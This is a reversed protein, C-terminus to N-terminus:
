PAVHDYEEETPIYVGVPGQRRPRRDGLEARPPRNAVLGAPPRLEAGAEILRARVTGYAAGYSLALAEITAGARYRRALEASEDSDMM